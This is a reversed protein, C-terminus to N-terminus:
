NNEILQKDTIVLDMKVDNKSAPILTTIQEDFCIGVKLNKYDKLYRDYYGKGFGLRNLKKDFSIGPIIMLNIEEKFVKDLANPELIGFSNHCKLDSLDKIEYFDLDQNNLVKPLCIRKHDNLAKLIFDKTNVEDKLSSYVAILKANKYFEFTSIRSTIILSKEDKSEVEKRLKLYKIRLEGKDM